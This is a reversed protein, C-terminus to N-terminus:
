SVTLAGLMDRPHVSCKYTYRGPGGVNFTTSRQAPGTIIPTSGIETGGPDTFVIDHMVGTDRNDLTITVASNAGVTLTTPAFKVNEAVM